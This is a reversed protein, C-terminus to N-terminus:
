RALRRALTGARDTSLRAENKPVVADPRDRSTKVQGSLVPDFHGGLRVLRGALSDGRRSSRSVDPRLGRANGSGVTAHLVSEIAAAQERGMLEGFQRVIQSRVAEQGFPLGAVRVVVILVPVLSFVTFFALAASQTMADREFWVWFTKRAVERWLALRSTKAPSELSTLATGERV